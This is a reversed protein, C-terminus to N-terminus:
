AAIEVARWGDEVTVRPPTGSRICEVFHAIEQFHPSEAGAIGGTVVRRGPSWETGDRREARFPAIAQSQFTLLGGDGAVEIATAFRCHAWSGEVHAIVDNEFRLTVLAYDISPAANDHGTPAAHSLPEEARNAT